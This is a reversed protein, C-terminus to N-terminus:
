GWRGRMGEVTICILDKGTGSGVKIYAGSVAFASYLVNTIQSM